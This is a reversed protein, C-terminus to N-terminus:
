MDLKAAVSRMGFRPIHTHTHTNTPTSLTCFLAKGIFVSEYVCVSVSVGFILVLIRVLFTFCHRGGGRGKYRVYGAKDCM